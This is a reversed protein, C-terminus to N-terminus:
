RLGGYLARQLVARGRGAKPARMGLTRAAGALAEALTAEQADADRPDRAFSSAAARTVGPARRAIRLWAVYPVAATKAGGVAAATRRALEAIPADLLDPRRWLHQVVGDNAQKSTFFGLPVLGAPIRVVVDRDESVRAQDVGLARAFQGLPTPELADYADALTPAALTALATRCIQTGYLALREQRALAVGALMPDLLLAEAPGPVWVQPAGSPALWIVVQARPPLPGPVADAWEEEAGAPEDDDERGLEPYEDDAPADDEDLAAPAVRDVDGPMSLVVADRLSSARTDARTTRGTGTGTGRGAGARIGVGAGTGASM